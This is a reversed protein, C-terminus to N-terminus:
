GAGGARLILVLGAAVAVAGTARAVRAGDPALREATIAATVLAMARLDMIGTVLLIATLGACSAVCHFGLRLGHRWAAGAGTPLPHCSGPTERCCALHRAKWATFQFAGALLVAVGAALPVAEALAPRRLAVETLATGLPFVAFGPVAWVLFYAAGALATLLGPRMGGTGGFTRRYRWLAPALSPLMMAVMMVVWMGVFPAAAALWTRSCVPMWAMPMEWGGPMPMGDMGHMSAGGVTAAASAVFVLAAAGLFAYGPPLHRSARGRM